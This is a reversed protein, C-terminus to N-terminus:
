RSRAVALQALKPAVFSEYGGKFQGPPQGEQGIAAHQDGDDGELSTPSTQQVSTLWIGTRFLCVSLRVRDAGSKRGQLWGGCPDKATVEPIKPIRLVAQIVTM